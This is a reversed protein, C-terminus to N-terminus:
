SYASYKISVQMENSCFNRVISKVTNRENGCGVIDFITKIQKRKFGLFICIILFCIEHDVSFVLLRFNNKFFFQLIQKAIKFFIIFNSLKKLSM